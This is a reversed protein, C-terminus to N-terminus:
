FRMKYTNRFLQDCVAPPLTSGWGCQAKYAAECEVNEDTFRDRRKILSQIQRELRSNHRRSEVSSIRGARAARVNNKQQGSLTNIENQVEMAPRFFRDVCYTFANAEAVWVLFVFSVISLIIFRKM